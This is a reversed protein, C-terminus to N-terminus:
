SRNRSGRPFAPPVTASAPLTPKGSVSDRPDRLRTEKGKRGEQEEADRELNQAIWKALTGSGNGYGGPLPRYDRTEIRPPAGWHPPFPKGNPAKYIRAKGGAKDKAKQLDLRNIAVGNRPADDAISTDVTFCSLLLGDETFRLHRKEFRGLKKSAISRAEAYLEDLTKAPAGEKNTGVEDGKEIWKPREKGHAKGRPPLPPVMEPGGFERYHRETVKNDQVILTTVNGAGTFSSFSVQYQYNGRCAARAKEWKALSDALAKADDGRVAVSLTLLLGSIGLIVPTNM